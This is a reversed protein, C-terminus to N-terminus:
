DGKVQLIAPAATIIILVILLIALPFTLRSEALKGKEEALKKRNNWLIESENALKGTLDIGRYQNDAIIAALRTFERIGAKNARENLVFILSRNTNSADYEIDIITKHFYNIEKRAKYGSCIRSFADNFILGCNMLMLLQDNFGPLTARVSDVKVRVSEKEKQRQNWYLMSILIMPLLLMAFGNSGDGRSWTIKTGDDLKDPLMVQKARTDEIKDIATSIERNLASSPDEDKSKVNKSKGGNLTLIIDKETMIGARSARVKLPYSTDRGSDTRAVGVIKNGDVIYKKGDTLGKGAQVGVLLLSVAIILMIAKKNKDERAFELFDDWKSRILDFKM